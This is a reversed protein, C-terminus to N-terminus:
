SWLGRKMRCFIKWAEKVAGSGHYLDVFEDDPHCRLAEFLWMSFALPKQGIIKSNFQPVCEIWDLIMKHKLIKRRPTKFIIPEWAYVPWVNKKIAAWPKVWAGVRIKTKFMPLLVQLDVSNCSLAFGDYDNELRGILEPFDIEDCDYHLKAKGFYPPDAYAIKM